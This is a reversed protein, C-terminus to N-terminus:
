GDEDKSLVKYKIVDLSPPRPVYYRKMQTKAGVLQFPSWSVTLQFLFSQKHSVVWEKLIILM